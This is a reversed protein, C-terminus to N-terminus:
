SQVANVFKKRFMKKTIGVLGEPAFITILLVVIGYIGATLFVRSSFRHRKDM